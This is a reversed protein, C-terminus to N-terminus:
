LAKGAIEQAFFGVEVVGSIALGEVV